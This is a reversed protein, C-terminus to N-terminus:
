NKLNLCHAIAYFFMNSFQIEKSNIHPEIPECLEFSLGSFMNDSSIDISLPEAIMDRYKEPIYTINISIGCHEGMFKQNFEKYYETDIKVVQRIKEFTKLGNVLSNNLFNDFNFDKYKEKVDKYYINDSQLIPKNNNKAYILYHLERLLFNSILKKIGNNLVYNYSEYNDIRIDISKYYDRNCDKQVEELLGLFGDLNEKRKNKPLLFYDKKLEEAKAQLERSMNIKNKLM